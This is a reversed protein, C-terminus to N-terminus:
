AEEPRESEDSFFRLNQSLRTKGFKSRKIEM